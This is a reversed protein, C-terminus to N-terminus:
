MIDIVVSALVPPRVSRLQMTVPIHHQQLSSFDQEIDLARLM